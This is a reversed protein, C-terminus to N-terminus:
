RAVELTCRQGDIEANPGIGRVILGESRYRAARAGLDAERGVIEGCVVRAAGDAGAPSLAIRRCETQVEAHTWVISRVNVEVKVNGCRYAGFARLFRDTGDAFDPLPPDSAIPGDPEGRVRLPAGGTRVAVTAHEGKGIDIQLLHARSARFVGIRGYDAFVGGFRRRTAEYPQTLRSYFGFIAGYDGQCRLSIVNRTRKVVRCGRPLPLVVHEPMRGDSPFGFAADGVETGELTIEPADLIDGSTFPRSPLPLPEELPEPPAPPPTKAPPAKTPPPTAGSGRTGPGDSCGTTLAVVALTAVCLSCVRLRGGRM